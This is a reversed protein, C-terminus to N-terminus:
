VTRVYKYKRSTKYDKWNFGTVTAKFDAVNAKKWIRRRRLENNTSMIGYGTCSLFFVLFCFYGVPICQSKTKLIVIWIIIKLICSARSAVLM